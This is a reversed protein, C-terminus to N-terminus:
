PTGGDILQPATYVADPAGGGINFNSDVPSSIWKATSTNFTLVEADQPDPVNTDALQNLSRANLQAQTYYRADGRADNHYQPHDDATLDQLASHSIPVVGTNGAGLKTWGIDIYEYLGMGAGPDWGIGDAWKIEGLTPRLPEESLPAFSFFEQDILIDPNIRTLEDALWRILDDLESPPYTPSYPM